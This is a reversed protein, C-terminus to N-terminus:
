TVDAFYAAHDSYLLGWGEGCRNESDAIDEEEWDFKSGDWRSQWVKLEGTERDTVGIIDAKGDGDWDDVHLGRRSM